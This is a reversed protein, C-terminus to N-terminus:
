SYLTHFSFLIKAIKPMKELINFKKPANEDNIEIIQINNKNKLIAM